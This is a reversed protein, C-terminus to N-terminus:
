NTTSNIDNKGEKLSIAKNIIRQVAKNAREFSDTRFVVAVDIEEGGNYLSVTFMYKHEKIILPETAKVAKRLKNYEPLEM